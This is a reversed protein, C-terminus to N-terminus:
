PPLGASVLHHRYQERIAVNKFAQRAIMPGVRFAPHLALMRRTLIRAEEERGQAALAAATIRLNSTYNRNGQLSRQGFVAAAAFNGGAYHAIAMFHEARFRFPDNPSLSLAREARLLAEGPQGLFAHTPSSWLWCESDNPAADLARQFLASAEDYDRALITRTHGLLALARANLPDIEIATRAAHQLAETDTDPSPTWGQGIRLSYWAALTAHLPAYRPDRALAAELLIGAEDFAVRELRLIRERAQLMLHYATIDDPTRARLGHLEAQHVSPVLTHAINSAIHEQARFLDNETADFTRSWLVAGTTVEALEVFLRLKGDAHRASGSVVYQVDLLAGIRAIDPTVDRLAYTSNSSIVVPERRSALAGVIDEVLGESLFPDVPDPGGSRFPLVAVRPVARAVPASAVAHARGDNPPGVLGQKIQAVLQQTAASPEMDHDRGLADFLRAYVRLAASTEGDEAALRMLARCAGEHLPDIALAMEAMRRHQPRPLASDALRREIAQTLRDSARTRAVDLWERFGSSLDDYGDLLIFSTSRRGALVAPVVGREISRLTELFDVGVFERHLTIAHRDSTLVHGAHDSLVTRLEVLVQRLSSRANHESTESWLLDALRERSETGSDDLALYALLALAKKNSM